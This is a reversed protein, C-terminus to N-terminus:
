NRVAARDVRTGRIVQVFRPPDARSASRSVRAGTSCTGGCSGENARGGVAAVEGDIRPIRLDSGAILSDMTDSSFAHPNARFIAAAQAGIPVDASARTSKAISWLTDGARVEVREVEAHLAPAVCVLVLMVM